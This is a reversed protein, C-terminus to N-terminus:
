WVGPVLRHGVTRAYLAYAEAGLLLREENRIRLVQFATATAIVIANALSPNSALYGLQSVLYAFYLPHRVLRYMGGTRVGRDAPLLGFSRGLSLFAALQLCLGALQVAQGALLDAGGEVPRLFLPLLTGGFTALVAAADTRASRAERRALVFGVVLTEFLAILVLSARPDAAFARWHAHAFWLYFAALCLDGAHRRLARTDLSAM